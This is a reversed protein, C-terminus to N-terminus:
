YIIIFAGVIYKLPLLKDKGRKARATPTPGGGGGFMGGFLHEFLSEMGHFGSEFFLLQFRNIQHIYCHNFSHTYYLRITTYTYRDFLM